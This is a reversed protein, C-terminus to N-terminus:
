YINPILRKTRKQYTLYKDGMQEILFNEEIRIRNMIGIMVPGMMLLISLWNSLATSIGLFVILFGLYGPHRIYKYLGTEILEHNETKTVTYTYHQKLTMISSIRIVIGILVLLAGIIIFLVWNDIRGIRTAGISFSLLNGIQLFILLFQLSKKDSSKVINLNRKQRANLYYEFLGYLIAFVLVMIWKTDM